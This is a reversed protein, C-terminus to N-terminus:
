PTTNLHLYLPVAYIRHNGILNADRVLDLLISVNEAIYKEDKYLIRMPIIESKKVPDTPHLEPLFPRLELLDAFESVLFHQLYTLARKQLIAADDPGPLIDAATLESRTGQPNRDSWNVHDPIYRIDIALRSTKNLM